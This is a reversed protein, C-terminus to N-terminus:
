EGRVAEKCDVFELSGKKIIFGFEPEDGVRWLVQNKEVEEEKM